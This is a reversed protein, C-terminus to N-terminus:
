CKGGRGTGKEHKEWTELGDDVSDSEQQAAAFANKERRDKCISNEAEFYGRVLVKQQKGEAKRRSGRNERFHMEGDQRM